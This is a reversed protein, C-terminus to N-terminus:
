GMGAELEEQRSLSTEPHWGFLWESLYCPIHAPNIQSRERSTVRDRIDDCRSMTGAMRTM